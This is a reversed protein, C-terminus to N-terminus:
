ASTLDPMHRPSSPANLCAAVIIDILRRTAADHEVGHRTIIGAQRPWGADAFRLPIIGSEGLVALHDVAHFSLYSSDRMLLLKLSVIDTEIAARPPQLGHARMMVELRRVLYTSRSPLIWPYKLLASFDLKRLGHLPHNRDAVVRYNDVL